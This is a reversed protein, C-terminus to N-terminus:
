EELQKAVDGLFHWLEFYWMDARKGQLEYIRKAGQQFLVAQRALDARKCEHFAHKRPCPKPAEDPHCTCGVPAAEAPAEIHPNM